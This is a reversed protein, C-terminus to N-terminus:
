KKSKRKPVKPEVRPKFLAVTNWFVTKIGSFLVIKGFLWLPLPESILKIKGHKVARAISKPDKNADVLSYTYAFHDFGHCDSNGILPKAYKAALKAGKKNWNIFRNYFFSYEIADFLDIHKELDKGLCIRRKFFPHPAIVLVDRPLKKLDELRPYDRVDGKFNVLLVEGQPYRVETGPILVLGKKAAYERFDRYTKLPDQRYDEFKHLPCYHESICIADFGMAVAFNILEKPGYNTEKKQLYNTHMHLDVKLM